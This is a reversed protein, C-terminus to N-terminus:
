NKVFNDYLHEWAELDRLIEKVDHYRDLPNKKMCKMAILKLHNSARTPDKKRVQIIMKIIKGIEWIDTRNDFPQGHELELPIDPSYCRGLPLKDYTAAALGNNLLVIDHDPDAKVLICAPTIDLHCMGKSHLFGVATLLQKLMKLTTRRKFYYEPEQKVFLDLPLGPILESILSDEEEIYDILKVLYPCMDMNLEKFLEFERKLLGRCNPHHALFEPVMRRLVLQKENESDDELSLRFCENVHSSNLMKGRAKYHENGIYIDAQKLKGMNFNKDGTFLEFFSALADSMATFISQDHVIKSKM